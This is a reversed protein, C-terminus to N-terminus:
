LDWKEWAVEGERLRNLTEVRKEVAKGEGMLSGKFPEFQGGKKEVAKGKGMQSSESLTGTMDWLLWREFM